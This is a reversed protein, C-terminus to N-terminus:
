INVVIVEEQTKQKTLERNEHEIWSEKMNNGGVSAHSGVSYLTINRNKQSIITWPLMTDEDELSSIDVDM